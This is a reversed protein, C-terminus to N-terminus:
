IPTQFVPNEQMASANGHTKRNGMGSIEDPMPPALHTAQLVVVENVRM